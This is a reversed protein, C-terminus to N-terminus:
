NNLDIMSDKERNILCWSYSHPSALFFYYVFLYYARL